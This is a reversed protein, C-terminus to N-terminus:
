ATVRDALGEPAGSNMGLTLTTRDKIKPTTNQLDNNTRTVKVMTNDTRRNVSKIVGNYQREKKQKRSKIIGNCQRNKKQKRSKIDEFM